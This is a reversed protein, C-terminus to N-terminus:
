RCGRLNVPSKALDVGHNPETEDEVNNARTAKALGAHDDTRLTALGAVVETIGSVARQTLGTNNRM